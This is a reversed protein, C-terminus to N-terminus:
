PNRTAQGAASAAGLPSASGPIFGLEEASPWHRDVENAASLPGTPPHLGFRLNLSERRPSAEALVGHHCKNRADSALCYGQGVALPFSWAREAEGEDGEDVIVIVAEGEMGVTVIVVGFGEFEPDDLHLPLYDTGNHLNPQFAVLGSLTVYDRYPSYAPLTKRVKAVVEEVAALWPASLPGLEKSCGWNRAEDAAARAADEHHRMRFSIRARAEETKGPLFGYCRERKDTNNGDWQVLKGDQVIQAFIERLAAMTPPTLGFRGVGVCADATNPPALAVSSGCTAQNADSLQCVAPDVKAGRPKTIPVGTAADFVLTAGLRRARDLRKFDEKRVIRRVAQGPQAAADLPRKFAPRRDRESKRLM